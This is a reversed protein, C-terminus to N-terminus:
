VSRTLDAYLRFFLSPGCEFRRLGKRKRREDESEMAAGWDEEEEKIVKRLEERQENKAELSAILKKWPNYVDLFIAKAHRADQIRAPELKAVDEGDGMDEDTARNEKDKGGASKPTRITDPTASIQTSSGIGPTLAPPRLKGPVPTKPTKGRGGSSGDLYEGIKAEMELADEYALLDERSKWIDKTRQYSYAAYFRKKARSLV